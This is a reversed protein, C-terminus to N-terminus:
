IFCLLLTWESFDECKLTRARNYHGTSVKSNFLREHKKKNFADKIILIDEFSGEFFIPLTEITLEPFILEKDRYRDKNYKFFM